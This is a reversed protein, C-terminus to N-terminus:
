LQSRAVGHDPFCVFIGDRQGQENGVDRPLLTAEVPASGLVLVVARVRPLLVALEQDSTRALPCHCQSTDQYM